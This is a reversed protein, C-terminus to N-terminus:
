PELIVKIAQRARLLELAKGMESLPLIHTVVRQPSVLGRALLDLSLEFDMWNYCFSGEYRLEDRVLPAPAFAAEEHFIGLLLVRGGPASVAALDKLVGPNGTAEVVLSAMKGATVGAVASVIDERTGDLVREAGLEAAAQTRLGGARGIVTVSAVRQARLAQLAYLGIPGVGFLVVHDQPQPNMRRIGRYSSALPDVSAGQIFSMSDPLRHLNRAPVRVYEAYAGDRHIGIESIKPCRSEEGQRCASCEGCGVVLGVAVRDGVKWGSVDSGLAEIEGAFEHGPILPYAVQRIGEFIPLDTGCIGVARVRVRVTRPKLEPLPLERLAFGPDPGEKVVAMMQPTM